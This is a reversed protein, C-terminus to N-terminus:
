IKIAVNNPLNKLLNEIKKAVRSNMEEPAIDKENQKNNGCASFLILVALLFIAQFLHSQRIARYIQYMQAFNPYPKGRCSCM